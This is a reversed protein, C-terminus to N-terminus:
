YVSSTYIVRFSIMRAVPAYANFIDIGFSQLFEQAVLRAKWREVAGTKSRKKFSARAKIAYCGEPLWCPESLVGLRELQAFEM